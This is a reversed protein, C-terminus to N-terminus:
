QAWPVLRVVFLDMKECAVGPFLQRLAISAVFPTSVFSFRQMGELIVDQSSLRRCGVRGLELVLVRAVVRSAFFRGLLLSDM